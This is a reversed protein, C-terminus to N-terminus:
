AEKRPWLTIAITCFLAAFLWVILGREDIPLDWVANQHAGSSNFTVGSMYALPNIVDLARAIAGTVGPVKSLGLLVFAVPWLLGGGSRAGPPFWFTLAQILGYWMVSVGIALITLSPLTSDFVPVFHLRLLAIIVVLMTLVFVIVLGAIDTLIYQLAILTRSIPKTWSIDRVTNERNLSTGISSGYVASFFMAITTLAGLPVPMGPTVVASGDVIVNSTHGFFLILLTVAALIGAHWTLTRRVRLFEVYVM